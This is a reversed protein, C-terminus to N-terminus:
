RVHRSTNAPSTTITRIMGQQGSSDVIRLRLSAPVEIDDARQQGRGPETKGDIAHQPRTLPAPDNRLRLRRRHQPQRQSEAEQQAPQDDKPHKKQHSCRTWAEPRSGSIATGINRFPWSSPPRLM